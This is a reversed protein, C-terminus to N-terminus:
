GGAWGSLGTHASNCTSINLVIVGIIAIAVVIAKAKTPLEREKKPAPPKRYAAAEYMGLVSTSWPRSTYRKKSM